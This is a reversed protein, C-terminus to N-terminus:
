QLEEAKIEYKWLETGEKNFVRCILRRDKRSGRFELIAFNREAVMTEPVRFYNPENSADYPRATLPSITIEYLPYTGPRPMKTIESHHRDGSLFIVGPIKEQEIRRLLKAREEPYTAYNEWRAVPNLVQGGIAVIKFTATSYKLADILWEIQKEGLLERQGTIRDNPTRHMRNDLLFFEVDGWEFRGSIDEEGDAGYVPNRWFLQFVELAVKRNWFGRDSNNPGYDHDDWIAYHHVSGLLPQLEPLSRTHTYRHIFGSRTNWDVERLYVNDGLWLMADPHQNVIAKLIEYDGGYPEGPRDYEPENVYFCSAVAIRFDPPDTRWQWLPLTQFRLPYPRHVKKGNIYVEYRYVRGPELPYANLHAIYGNEKRTMVEETRYRKGTATDWYEIFVRAAETTQVWLAVERYDAYGVMPGSQLLSQEAATAICLLIWIIPLIKRM